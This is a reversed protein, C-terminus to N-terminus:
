LKAFVFITKGARIESGSVLFAEEQRVENVFTGNTSNLDKLIFLGDESRMIEFHTRGIEPDGTIKLASVMKDGTANASRGVVLRERIAAWTASGSGPDKFILAPVEPRQTLADYLENFRAIREAVATTSIQTSELAARSDHIMELLADDSLNSLSESMTHPTM